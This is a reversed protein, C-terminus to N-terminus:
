KGEVQKAAAIFTLIQEAQDSLGCSRFGLIANLEDLSDPATHAIAKLVTNSAVQYTPVRESVAAKQRFEQMKTYIKREIRPSVTASQEKM